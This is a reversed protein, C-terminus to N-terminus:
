FKSQKVKLKEDDSLEKEDNGSLLEPDESISSLKDSGEEEEEGSIRNREVHVGEWKGMIESERESQPKASLKSPVELNEPKFSHDDQRNNEEVCLPLQDSNKTIHELKLDSNMVVHGNPCNTEQPVPVKEALSSHDMETHADQVTHTDEPLLNYKDPNIEESRKNTSFSTISCSLESDMKVPANENTHLSGSADIVAINHNGNDLALSHDTGQKRDDKAIEKELCAVDKQATHLDVPNQMKIDSAKGNEVKFSDGHDGNEVMSEDLEERVASTEKQEVVGSILELKGGVGHSSDIGLNVHSEDTSQLQLHELNQTLINMVAENYQVDAEKMEEEEIGVEEKTKEDAIAHKGARRHQKKNQKKMKKKNHKSNGPTTPQNETEESSSPIFYQFHKSWSYGIKHM